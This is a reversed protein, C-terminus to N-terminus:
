SWISGDLSSASPCSGDVHPGLVIVDRRCRPTQHTGQLTVGCEASLGTWQKNSGTRGGSRRSVSTLTAADVSGTTLLIMMSAVSRSPVNSHRTVIPAPRWVRLGSPGLSAGERDVVAVPIAASRTRRRVAMSQSTRARCSSGSSITRRAQPQIWRSSRNPPRGLRSSITPPWFLGARTSSPPELPITRHSRRHPVRAASACCFRHSWPRVGSWGSACPRM